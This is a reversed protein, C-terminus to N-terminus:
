LIYFVCAISSVKEEEEVNAYNRDEQFLHWYKLYFIILACFILWIEGWNLWCFIQTFSLIFNFQFSFFTSQGLQTHEWLLIHSLYGKCHCLYSSSVGFCCFAQDFSINVLIINFSMLDLFLIFFFCRLEALCCDDTESLRSNSKLYFTIESLLTALCASRIM